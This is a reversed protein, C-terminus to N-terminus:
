LEYGWYRIIAVVSGPKVPCVVAPTLGSLLFSLEWHARLVDPCGLHVQQPHAETPLMRTNSGHILGGGLVAM